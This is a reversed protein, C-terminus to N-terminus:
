VPADSLGRSERDRKATSGPCLCKQLIKRSLTRTINRHHSVSSQSGGVDQSSLPRMVGEAQSCPAERFLNPQLISCAPCSPSAGTQKELIRFRNPSNSASRDGGANRAARVQRRANAGPPLSLNGGTRAEQARPGKDWGLPRPSCMWATMFPALGEGARSSVPSTSSLVLFSLGFKITHCIKAGLGNFLNPRRWFQQLLTPM